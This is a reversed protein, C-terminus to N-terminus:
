LLFVGEATHEYGCPRPTPLALTYLDTSREELLAFRAAMPSTEALVSLSHSFPLTASEKMDSLLERGAPTFGLIRLYPPPTIVDRQELSLFASLVLRRVRSLPYRKTKIEQYLEELSTSKRVAAELRNEIGESLDPLTEFEKPTMRRLQALVALELAEPLVPYLGEKKAKNLITVTSSPLYPTLQDLEKQQRLFSASAFGQRPLTSDHDVGKRPITVPTVQWSLARAAALYELALINNPSALTSAAQKGYLEEVALGRAHAFSHGQKLYDTLAQQLAQSELQQSLASLPEIKGSESGFLLHTVVGTHRLLAVAGTAFQQATATAYPLPLELVLDAGEQLAMHARVRKETIAPQARQVFNGSMVAVCHTAGLQKAKSLLYAHGNHFPNFEAIVGFVTTM